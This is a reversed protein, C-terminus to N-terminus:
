GWTLLVVADYLAHTAAVIGLGRALFLWGFFIGALLYFAFLSASVGGGTLSLNHYFAFGVASIVVAAANAPKERIRMLDVLVFHLGSLAILRFLMEEYLGAGISLTLRAQWPMAEVQVPGALAM